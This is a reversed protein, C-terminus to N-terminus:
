WYRRRVQLVPLQDTNNLDILCPLETTIDAFSKKVELVLISFFNHFNM